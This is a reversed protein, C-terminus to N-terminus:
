VCSFLHIPRGTKYCWVFLAIEILLEAAFFTLVWIEYQEHMFLFLFLYVAIVSQLARVRKLTAYHRKDPYGFERRGLSTTVATVNECAELLYVLCGATLILATLLGLWGDERYAYPWLPVTAAICVIDLLYDIFTRRVPPCLLYAPQMQSEVKVTNYRDWLSKGFLKINVLKQIM